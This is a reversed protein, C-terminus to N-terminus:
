HKIVNVLDKNPPKLRVHLYGLKWKMDTQSIEHSAGGQPKPQSFHKVLIKNRALYTRRGAHNLAGHEDFFTM